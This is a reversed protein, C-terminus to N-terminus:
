TTEFKLLNWLLDGKGGIKLGVAFAYLHRMGCLRLCKFGHSFFRASKILKLVGSHMALQLFNRIGVTSFSWGGCVDSCLYGWECSSTWM